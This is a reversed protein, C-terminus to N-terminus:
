ADPVGGLERFRVAIGNTFRIDVTEIIELESALGKDLMQRLRALRGGIDKRGVLVRAGDKLTFSLARSGSLTVREIASAQDPFVAQLTRYHAFVEGHTDDPGELQVIDVPLTASKPRFLLGDRNLLSSDNWRAVPRQETVTVQVGDPWVRRVSVDDIWPEALLAARISEVDVRFFGPKLERMVIDKLYQASLHRFEGEVYVTSIPLTRADLLKAVGYAVAAVTALTLVWGVLWRSMAPRRSADTPALRRAQRAMMGARDGRAM